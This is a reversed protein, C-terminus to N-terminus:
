HSNKLNSSDKCKQIESDLSAKALEYQKECVPDDPHKQWYQFAKEVQKALFLLQNNRDM